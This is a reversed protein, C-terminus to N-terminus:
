NASQLGRAKLDRILGELYDYRKLHIDPWNPHDIFVAGNDLQIRTRVIQQNKARHILYPGESPINELM